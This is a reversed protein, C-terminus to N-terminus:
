GVRKKVDAEVEAWWANLFARAEKETEAPSHGPAVPRQTFFYFKVKPETGSARVAMRHGGEVHFLLMTEKPIPTGDVDAFDQKGYDDLREVPLGGLKQPPEARYSALLAQIQASGKAGEMTITGLREAFLGHERYLDALAELLTKGRAKHWAAVEALMLAAANGDKDRVYDGGSYGYSEEGGFVFFTGKELQAARRAAPPQFHYDALGTAQEYERLKAGIYKFGTLCEVCKVGYRAALKKQLDTTVFTKILAARGANQPTLVGQAFLRELRYAAILSGIMNGTLLAYNGAGDRVAAGLRDCDPDTAIVLDAQEEKAQAIALELAASEEPNPSKVTPFRGDGEQQAAVVSFPVGVEKYLDPIIQIGTGHLSSYVIKLGKAEALAQPEVILTKLAQRYVADASAGLLTLTGKEAVDPLPAGKQLAEVEAIVGSAHPEVLQAGDDFYAKFGNDHPPNHSASIVIGAQAREQRVTFSLQPTSREEAFLLVDHGLSQLKEACLEAFPRSYHRTDHAIVVKCKKGPFAKRLHLGLGLAARALNARNMMNTGVAPHEPAGLPTPTGKEVPTVVKGITRGRIGGTGFALTKFFRDNLENWEGAALLEEISARDGPSTAPQGHVKLINEVTSPLLHGAQQAAELQDRVPDLTPASM